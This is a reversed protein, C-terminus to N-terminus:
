TVRGVSICGIRPFPVFPLWFPVPGHGARVAPFVIPLESFPQAVAKGHQLAGLYTFTNFQAPGHGPTRMEQRDGATKRRQKGPTYLPGAWHGHRCPVPLVAMQMAMGRDQVMVVVLINTFAQQGTSGEQEPGDSSWLNQQSPQSM